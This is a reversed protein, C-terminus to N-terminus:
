PRSVGIRLRDEFLNVMQRLTLSNTLQLPQVTRRRNIQFQDSLPHTFQALTAACDSNRHGRLM